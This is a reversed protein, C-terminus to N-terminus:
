AKLCAVIFFSLTDWMSALHQSSPAFEPSHVYRNLTDASLLQEAHQFKNLIGMQKDNIKGKQQLDKGVKIVKTALHDNAYTALGTQSVYNEVALELLVRFLVSVANTHRDLHLEASLERWIDRHRQLRGPWPLFYDSDPILHQRKQTTPPASQNPERHPREPKKKASSNDSPEVRDNASPLIGLRELSDLYKNKGDTDWVDNLSIQKNVLDSAIRELAPLVVHPEHTFCFQGKSASIGVRNRFSEASLLRNLTSRPIQRGKPLLSAESLSREVEDAVNIRDEKGTREIFTAKMRDDWTSQGVGGQTGTHRRFLIEDIKDRDSEVQCEIEFKDTIPFLNHLSEFYTRLEQTPARKPDAILKLATTRRNGDFVINTKGDPFVLPLEYLQKENAIDAALKRMHSERKAFLWAIAATENELEGHRDNSRNITLDQLRIKQM